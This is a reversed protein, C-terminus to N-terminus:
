SEDIPDQYGFERLRKRLTNRAMGLREALKVESTRPQSRAYRLLERELLETLAPL